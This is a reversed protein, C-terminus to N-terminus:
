ETNAEAVASRQDNEEHITYLEKNNVNLKKNNACRQKCKQNKAYKRLKHRETAGGLGRLTPDYLRPNSFSSRHTQVRNDIPRRRM